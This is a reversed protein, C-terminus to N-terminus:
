LNQQDIEIFLISPTSPNPRPRPWASATITNVPLAQTLRPLSSFGVRSERALFYALLSELSLLDTNMMIKNSVSRVYGLKALIEYWLFCTQWSKGRQDM